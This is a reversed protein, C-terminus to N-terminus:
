DNTTKAHLYYITGGIDVEITRNALTPTVTAVTGLKWEAATGGAPAATKITQAFEAKQATTLTLATTGDTQLRLARATGTGAEETGFEMVNSNWRMFGREYNSADTFTNYIRFTQANTTRRQAFTDAADSRLATTFGGGFFLGASSSASYFGADGVTTTLYSAYGSTGVNGSSPGALEGNKKVALRSIGGVQLSILVSEGGSATDTANFKLGTFTTGGANWTQTLDLRPKNTTVTEGNTGTAGTVATTIQQITAKVNGGSQVLPAVETGTLAAAADLESIKKDAM